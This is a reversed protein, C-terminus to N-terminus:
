CRGTIQGAYQCDWCLDYGSSYAGRCVHYGGVIKKLEDRKLMGKINNLQSKKESVNLSEPKTYEM